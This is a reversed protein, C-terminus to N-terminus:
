KWRKRIEAATRVSLKIPPANVGPIFGRPTQTGPKLSLKDQDATNGPLFQPTSRPDGCFVDPDSETSHDRNKLCGAAHILEHVAIFEKVKDGVERQDNALPFMPVFIFCKLMRGGGTLTRTLGHILVASFPKDPDPPHITGRFKFSTDGGSFDFQINAGGDKFGESDPPQDAEKLTVGLKHLGSLTNFTTIATTFIPGWRSRVLRPTPFVTLVATDKVEQVWQDIIVGDDAM